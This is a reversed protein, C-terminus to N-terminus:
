VEVKVVIKKIKNGNGICPKHIDKPLFVLFEGECVEISKLEEEEIEDFIQFDNIQDYQTNPKMVGIDRVAMGESGKVIYQIDIYRRHGEWKLDESKKTEYTQELISIKDDQKGKLENNLFTKLFELGELINKKWKYNEIEKINIPKM